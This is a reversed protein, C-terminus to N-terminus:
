KSFDIEDIIYDDDESEEDNQEIIQKKDFTQDLYIREKKISDPVAEVSNEKENEGFLIERNKFFDEISDDIRESEVVVENETFVKIPKSKRSTNEINIKYDVIPDLIELEDEALSKEQKVVMQNQTTTMESPDKMSLDVIMDPHDEEALTFLASSFRKILLYSCLLALVLLIGATQWVYFMSNALIGISALFASLFILIMKGKNSFHNPVLYLTPILILLAFLTLLITKLM